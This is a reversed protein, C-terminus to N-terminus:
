PLVREEAACRDKHLPRYEIREGGEVVDHRLEDVERSCQQLNVVSVDLEGAIHSDDQSGSVCGAM